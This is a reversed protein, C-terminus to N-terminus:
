FRYGIAFIVPHNYIEHRYESKFHLGKYVDVEIGAALLVTIGFNRQFGKLLYSVGQEDILKYYAANFGGTVYPRIKKNLINQQILVPVSILTATYNRLTGIAGFLRTKDRAAYQYKFFDIGINLSTSRNIKPFYTRYMLQTFLEHNSSNKFMGGINALVFHVPKEKISVLQNTSGMLRNYETLVNIFDKERFTANELKDFSTSLDSIAKTLYYKYHYRAVETQQLGRLEKDNQLVYNRENNTIIYLIDGKYSIKYLSAKGKLVLKALVAIADTTDNVRIQLYDFIENENLQYSKIQTTDYTTVNKDKEASKFSIRYNMKGLESEKIFGSISQGNKLQVMGKAYTTKLQGYTFSKFFLVFILFLHNKLSLLKM